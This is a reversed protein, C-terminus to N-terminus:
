TSLIKVSLIATQFQPSQKESPLGISNPEFFQKLGLLIKLFTKGITLAVIDNGAQIHSFPLTMLHLAPILFVGFLSRQANQSPELGLRHISAAQCLHSLDLTWITPLTFISSLKM